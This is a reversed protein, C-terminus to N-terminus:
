YLVSDANYFILRSNKYDFLVLFNELMMNGINGALKGSGALGQSSDPLIVRLSNFMIEGMKFTAAYANKGGVAGGIGGFLKNNDQIDDLTGLLNNDRMFRNHIILGLSNGLDVIFDGTIGNLEGSVTPVQMTLYFDVEKGGNPPSFSDPNYVTLKKQRYNVLVPFRALFDYGLLGGFDNINVYNRSLVGM